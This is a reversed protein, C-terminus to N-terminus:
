TRMELLSREISRVTKTIEEVTNGIAPGGTGQELLGSLSAAQAEIATLRDQVASIRGRYQSAVENLSDAMDALNDKNRLRINGTLDGGAIKSAERGIRYAPGAIRHSYLLHLVVMALLILVSIVTYLVAVKWFLVNGIERVQAQVNHYGEGLNAPLSRFLGWGAVVAGLVIIVLSNTYLLLRYNGRTSFGM